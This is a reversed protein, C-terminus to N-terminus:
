GARGEAIDEGPDGRRGARGFRMVNADDWAAGFVYSGIVMAALAYAGMALGENLRTDAGWLTLYVIVFACLILTAFVVLRRREWRPEYM